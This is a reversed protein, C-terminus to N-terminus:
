AQVEAHLRDFLEAVAPDTHGSSELYEGFLESASRGAQRPARGAAAATEALVEPDIRVELARPLMEQVAERLGARPRERVYVRLWGDESGYASLEDLTGRVTRLKVASPIPLDRTRAATSTTVDVITVSPRNEEEGFDIALPSGSYRVPCPAVVAQRRHLHGLAVYQTTAPFM